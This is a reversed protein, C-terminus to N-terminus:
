KASALDEISSLIEACSWQGSKNELWEKIDACQNALEKHQSPASMLFVKEVKDILEKVILCQAINELNEYKQKLNGFAELNGAEFQCQKELDEIKKQIALQKSREEDILQNAYYYTNDGDGFGFNGISGTETKSEAMFPILYRGVRYTHASNNQGYLSLGAYFEEIYRMPCKLRNEQSREKSNGSAWSDFNIIFDERGESEKLLRLLKEYEVVCSSRKEIPDETSTKIEVDQDQSQAPNTQTKTKPSPFTLIKGSRPAMSIQPEIRQTQPNYYGGLLSSFTDSARDRQKRIRMLRRLSRPPPRVGRESLVKQIEQTIIEELESKNINNFESTEKLYKRWNEMILKM